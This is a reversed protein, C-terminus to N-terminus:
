ERERERQGISSNHIIEVPMARMCYANALEEKKREEESPLPHFYSSFRNIKQERQMTWEPSQLPQFFSYLCYSYVILSASFPAVKINDVVAFVSYWEFLCSM